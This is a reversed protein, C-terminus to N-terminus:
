FTKSSVLIPCLIPAFSLVCMSEFSFICKIYIQVICISLRIVISVKLSIHICTHGNWLAFRIASRWYYFLLLKLSIMHVWVSKLSKTLYFPPPHIKANMRSGMPLFLLFISFQSIIINEERWEGEGGNWFVTWFLFVTKDEVKRETSNFASVFVFPFFFTQCDKFRTSTDTM